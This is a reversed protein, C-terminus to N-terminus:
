PTPRPKHADPEGAIQELHRFYFKNDVKMVPFRKPLQSKEIEIFRHKEYFRHAALFKPTTGLYIERVSKLKSWDILKSLLIKAVGYKSGRYERQVFMKRLAAQGNGIDLLSITGVVQNSETAVWFNGCGTQYFEQINHLDLQQEATIEIGFENNQINLILAIVKSKYKKSYEEIKIMRCNGNRDRVDIIYMAPCFNM